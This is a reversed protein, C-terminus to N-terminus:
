GLDIVQQLADNAFDLFLDMIESATILSSYICETTFTLLVSVCRTLM